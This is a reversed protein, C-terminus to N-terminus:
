RRVVRDVSKALEEFEACAPSSPTYERVTLGSTVAEALVIRQAIGPLVKKGLEELM